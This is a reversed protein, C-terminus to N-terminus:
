HIKEDVISPDIDPPAQAGEGALSPAEESTLKVALLPEPAAVVPAPLSIAKHNRVLEICYKPDDLQKIKQIDTLKWALTESRTGSPLDIFFGTLQVPPGNREVFSREGYGRHSPTTSSDRHSTFLYRMVPWNFDLMEGTVGGKITGDLNYHVGSWTLSAERGKMNIIALSDLAAGQKVEFFWVGEVFQDGLFLRRIWTASNFVSWFLFITIQYGLVAIVVLAVLVLAYPLKFGSLWDLTTKTILVSAGGAVGRALGVLRRYRDM